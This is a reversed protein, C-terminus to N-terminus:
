IQATRDEIVATVGIVVRFMDLFNGVQKVRSGLRWGTVWSGDDNKSCWIYVPYYILSAEVHM